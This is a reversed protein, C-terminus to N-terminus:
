RQVLINGHGGAYLGESESFFGYYVRYYRGNSYSDRSLLFSRASGGPTMAYSYRDKVNLDEDVVVVQVATRLTGSITFRFIGDTPNPFVPQVSVQARVAGALDAAPLETFLARTGAPFGSYVQWDDPDTAILVGNGDTRTISSADIHGGSKKCHMLLVSLLLFYILKM